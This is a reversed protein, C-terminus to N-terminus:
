PQVRLKAQRQSRPLSQSHRTDTEGGKPQSLVQSRFVCLSSKGCLDQPQCMAGWAPDTWASWEEEWAEWGQQWREVHHLNATLKRCGLVLRAPTRAKVWGASWVHDSCIPSEHGPWSIWFLPPSGKDATEKRWLYITPTIVQFFVSVSSIYFLNYVVEAFDLCENLKRNTLTHNSPALYTSSLSNLPICSRSNSRPSNM